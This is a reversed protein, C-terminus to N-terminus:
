QVLALRQITQVTDDEYRVVDLAAIRGRISFEDKNWSDIMELCRHPDRSNGIGIHPVFDVHLARHPFLKDAYLKDHLKVVRSYGEDPVLFTHYYDNFADKNLVACRLCFDFPRFGSLQKATEAVFLEAEWDFTPFVLTIHLEVAHYYLGDHRKRFAQIRGYDVASMEPYALVLLAM